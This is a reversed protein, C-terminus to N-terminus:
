DLNALASQAGVNDPSVKLAEDLEKKANQKEDLGLYGLGAAYHATGLASRQARLKDLSLSLNLKASDQQLAQNATNVLSHLMTAAQETQGLQRLSLARYYSQIEGASL